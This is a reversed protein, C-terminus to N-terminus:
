FIRAPGNVEASISGQISGGSRQSSLKWSRLGATGGVEEAEGYMVLRRLMIQLIAMPYRHHSLLAPYREQISGSIQKLTQAESAEQLAERCADTLGRSRRRRVPAPALMNQLDAGVVGPGFVEALGAITNKILWIKKAIAVHEARLIQLQQQIQGVVREVDADEVGSGQRDPIHEAAVSSGTTVSQAGMAIVFSSCAITIV